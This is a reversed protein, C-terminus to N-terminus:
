SNNLVLTVWGDLAIRRELRYGQARYIALAANAHGPLLGSLVIRARRATLRSLPVALRMLPGLLINAFILDYRAGNAIARAKAGAARVCIIAPAAGNLRANARAAEVAVRDIDSAIVRTRLIKAAAIALVGSGTGIDLVKKDRGRWPFPHRASCAPHPDNRKQAVVGRDEGRASRGEGKLSPIPSNRRRKALDDLALLCGRTTGHHGTGFALAAEIEIGIDNPKVRVRDHLGHVVLRGARVPPLGALSEKVWDAPALPEVALAAAAADGAALAVQAHLNAADPMERFHIAVQWRGGDDEFAACVADDAGYIEGLYAALRRATPEDCTLRAVTTTM